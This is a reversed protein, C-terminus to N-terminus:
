DRTWSLSSPAETNGRVAHELSGLARQETERQHREMARRRECALCWRGVTTQRTNEPTFEHGWKCHTKRANMAMPSVGRLINERITVPELHDPNVCARNRCLHDLTLGDLIPGRTLEWAIRHAGKPIGRDVVFQGYGAPTKSAQWLWCGNETKLVKSWFRADISLRVPEITKGATVRQYHRGCLGKAIHPQTCGAVTCLRPTKKRSPLDTSGHKRARQYHMSCLGRAEYTKTCGEITCIGPTDKPHM